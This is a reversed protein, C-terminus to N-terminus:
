KQLRGKIVVFKHRGLDQKSGDENKLVARYLYVGPAVDTLSWRLRQTEAAAYSQHLTQIHEGTFNWITLEITGSGLTQYVFWLEDGRAPSPYSVITDTTLAYPLHTPTYTFTVTQVQTPTLTCTPTATNTLTPTASWDPTITLTPTISSTTTITASVTLTPTVTASVTATRTQTLTPTHTPTATITSSHTRTLTVSPTVTPTLSATATASHTRTLTVTPTCTGTPTQTYTSTYTASHTRSPTATPTPTATNTSTRTFTPTHTRTSTPSSDPTYTFTPTPNLITYNAGGSDFLDNGAQDHTLEVSLNYNGGPPNVVNSITITMWTSYINNTVSARLMTPFRTLACNAGDINVTAASLDTGAPFLIWAYDSALVTAPCNDCYLTYTSSVGAVNSGLTPHPVLAWAPISFFLLSLLMSTMWTQRM